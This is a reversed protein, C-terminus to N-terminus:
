DQFLDTIASLYQALETRTSMALRLVDDNRTILEAAVLAKIWREGFTDKARAEECLEATTLTRGRVDSVFLTLLMTWGHEDFLGGDFYDWRLRRMKLLRVATQAQTDMNMSSGWIIQSQQAVCTVTEFRVAVFWILRKMVRAHRDGNLATNSVRPVLTHTGVSILRHQVFVKRLAAHLIQRTVERQQALPSAAISACAVWITRIPGIM